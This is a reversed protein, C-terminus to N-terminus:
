PDVATCIRMCANDKDRQIEICLVNVHMYVYICMCEESVNMCISVYTCIHIYIYICM